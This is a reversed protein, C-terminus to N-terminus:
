INTKASLPFGSNGSFFRESCLVSGVFEAWIHRRTPSDLRPCMPPLCASEGSRRGERGKKWTHVMKQTTAYKRLTVCKELQSGNKWTHVIKRTIVCKRLTVCKELHPGNKWAHGIKRTTVFNRLTVCKELIVRKEWHSM